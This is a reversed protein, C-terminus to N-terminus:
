VAFFFYYCYAFCVHGDEGVDQLFTILGKNRHAHILREDIDLGLVRDFVSWKSIIGAARLERLQLYWSLQVWARHRGPCRKIKFGFLRPHGLEDRM